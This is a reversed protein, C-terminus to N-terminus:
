SYFRYGFGVCGAPTSSSIYPLKFVYSLFNPTYVNKKTNKTNQQQRYTPCRNPNIYTCRRFVAYNYSTRLYLAFLLNVDRRLGIAVAAATAVFLLRGKKRKRM